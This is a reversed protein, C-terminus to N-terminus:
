EVRNDSMCLVKLIVDGSGAGIMWALICGVRGSHIVGNSFVWPIHYCSPDVMVGLSSEGWEGRSWVGAGWSMTV